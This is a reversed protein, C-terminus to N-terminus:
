FLLKWPNLKIRRIRFVAESEQLNTDSIMVKLVTLVIDLVQSFSKTGLKVSCIM